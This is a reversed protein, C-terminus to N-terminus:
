ESVNTEALVQQILKNVEIMRRMDERTINESKLVYDVYVIMLKSIEQQYKSADEVTLSSRGSICAVYDMVCFAQCNEPTDMTTDIGPLYQWGGADCKLLCPIGGEALCLQEVKKQNIWSRLMLGGVVCVIIVLAIIIIWKKNKGTKKAMYEDRKKGFFCTRTNFDVWQVDLLKRHNKDDRFNEPCKGSSM